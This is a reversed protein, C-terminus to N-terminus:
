GAPDRAQRRLVLWYLLGAPPCLCLLMCLLHSDNLRPQHLSLQPQASSGVPETPLDSVLESLQHRTRASYARSLRGEFEDMTLRGTGVHSKLLAAVEEREADSALIPRQNVHAENASM